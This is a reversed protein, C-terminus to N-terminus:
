CQAILTQIMRNREEESAKRFRRTIEVLTFLNHIILLISSNMEQVTLLHHLYAKTHRRCTYCRCTPSLPTGDTQYRHDCLDLLADSRKVDRSLDQVLLAVGKEALTWPLTCEIFTMRQELAVIFQPFSHVSCMAVSRPRKRRIQRLNCEFERLNVNGPLSDVFFAEHETVSDPFAIVTEKTAGSQAFAEWKTNKEHIVRRKRESTESFPISEHPCVAVSPRLVALMDAWKCTDLTIKGKEHIAAVVGESGTASTHLGQFASRCTLISRFGGLGCFDLFSTQSAKVPPILETAELASISMWMEERELIANVQSPTLGVVSARRTPLVLFPGDSHM